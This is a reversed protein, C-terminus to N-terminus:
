PKPVAALIEAKTQSSKVNDGFPSLTGQPVSVLKGDVNLVVMAGTSAEAISQIVGIQAGSSDSVKAGARFAPAPASSSAPPDDTPAPPATKAAPAAPMAPAAPATAEEPPPPLTPTVTPAPAPAAPNAAPAAQATLALLAAPLAAMAFLRTKM